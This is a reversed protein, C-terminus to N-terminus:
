RTEFGMIKDLYQESLAATRRKRVLSKKPDNYSNCLNMAIRRVTSLNEDGHDKRITSGDEQFTADLVWHLTNEIGWHGRTLDNFLQANGKASSIYFRIEETVNDGSAKQRSSTIRVLTRLGRWGSIQGLLKPKDIVDCRRGEIRGHGKTWQENTSAPNNHTFLMEVKDLLDPQNGKVQLLYDGKNAVITQAIETQCGMADISIIAGRIDLLALLEPIATIENTKAGVKLQGLILKNTGCWASVMHIANKGIFSDESGRLTKGDISVLQGKTLKCLKATWRVFCQQFRKPDLRRFVGNLVDHSPTRGDLFHGHKQLWALRSEAFDELDTFSNCNAIVGAITLFLLSEFTYHLTHDTRPDKVSKFFTLVTMKRRKAALLAQM